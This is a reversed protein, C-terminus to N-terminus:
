LVQHTGSLGLNTKLYKPWMLQNVHPGTWTWVWISEPSQASIPKTTKVPGALFLWYFSTFVYRGRPPQSLHNSTRTVRLQFAESWETSSYWDARAKCWYEGSHFVSAPGLRYESHTPATNPGTVPQHSSTTRWEYEWQTDGGGQIECRVSITEGSFIQTWNHQLVVFSRNSVSCEVCIYFWCLSSTLTAASQNQKMTALWSLRSSVPETSTICTVRRQSSIQTLGEGGAGTAAERHSAWLTTCLIQQSPPKRLTQPVHSGTTAGVLLSRWLVPWLWLAAWQSPRGPHEWQPEPDTHQEPFFIWM